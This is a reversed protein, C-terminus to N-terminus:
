RLTRLIREKNDEYYQKKQDLIKEKNSECYQKKQVVIKDRNADRYEKATRTPIVKNVCENNEIYFRERTHLEFKHEFEVREVM